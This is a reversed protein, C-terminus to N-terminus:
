AECVHAVGVKGSPTVAASTVIDTHGSLMQAERVSVVGVTLSDSSSVM